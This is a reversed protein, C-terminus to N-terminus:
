TPKIKDRHNLIQFSTVLVLCLVAPTLQSDVSSSSLDSHLKYSLRINGQDVSFTPIRNKGM